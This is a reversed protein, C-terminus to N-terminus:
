KITEFDRSLLGIEKLGNVIGDKEVNTTVLDAHDKVVQWANGMAIGIGVEQLMEIDNMGDGFAIVDEMAFGLRDIMQKIGEAKSGGKPVIDVSSEHWRIFTVDDFGAFFREENKEKTFLLAQYINKNKYFDPDFEPHALKLSGLSEKILENHKVNAKMTTENLYVLPHECERATEDIKQLVDRDIPNKYIVENEFVVFQGNFCIYSHINLEELLPYTMFPARGTAIATYIGQKQLQRVAAKTSAPLEKQEDLLTDDIDFFVIKTM